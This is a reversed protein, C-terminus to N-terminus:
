LEFVYVKLEFVNIQLVVDYIKLSFGIHDHWCDFSMRRYYHTHLNHTLSKDSSHRNLTMEHSM